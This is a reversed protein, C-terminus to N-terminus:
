EEAQPEVPNVDMCYITYIRWSDTLGVRLAAFDNDWSTTKTAAATWPPQERRLNPSVTAWRKGIGSPGTAEHGGVMLTPFSDLSYNALSGNM